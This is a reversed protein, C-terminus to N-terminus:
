HFLIKTNKWMIDKAIHNKVSFGMALNLKKVSVDRELTNILLIAMTLSKVVFHVQLYLKEGVHRNRQNNKAFHRKNCSKESFSGNSLLNEVFNM